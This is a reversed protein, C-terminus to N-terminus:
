DYTRIKDGNFIDRYKDSDVDVTDMGHSKISEYLRRHALKVSEPEKQIQKLYDLFTGSFKKTSKKSRQKKILELFKSM